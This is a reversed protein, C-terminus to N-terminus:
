PRNLYEDAFSMDPQTASDLDQFSRPTAHAHILQLSARSPPRISSDGRFHDSRALTERADRLLNRAHHKRSSRRPEPPDRERDPQQQQGIQQHRRRSEKILSDPQEPNINGDRPAKRNGIENPPDSDAVRSSQNGCKQQKQILAPAIR